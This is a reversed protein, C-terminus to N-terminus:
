FPDIEKISKVFINHFIYNIRSGGLCEIASDKVFKGEIMEGYSNTFRNILNLVVPGKDGEISYSNIDIQVLEIEKNQLLENIQRSLSPICKVIHQCLIRNMSDALFPIGLRDSYSSYTPHTAFFKAENELAERISINEDIQKQSRCKVGYYGLNLPYIKGQLLDLADTGQDMLDIKTVVGITREGDPDVERAM